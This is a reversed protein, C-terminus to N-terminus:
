LLSKGANPAVSLTSLDADAGHEKLVKCIMSLIVDCLAPNSVFCTAPMYLIGGLAQIMFICRDLCQQQSRSTLIFNELSSDAVAACFKGSLCSCCQEMLDDDRNRLLLQTDVFEMLEAHVEMQIKGHSFNKCSGNLSSELYNGSSTIRSDRLMFCYLSLLASFAAEKVGCVLEDARVECNPVISSLRRLAIKCNSLRKFKNKSGLHLKKPLKARLDTIPCLDLSSTNQYTSPETIAQVLELLLIGSSFDNRLDFLPKRARRPLFHANLWGRVAIEERQVPLITLIERSRYPEMTPRSISFIAACYAMKFGRASELTEGPPPLFALVGARTAARRIYEVIDRGPSLEDSSDKMTEEILKEFDSFSEWNPASKPGSSFGVCFCVWRWLINEPDARTLMELTEPHELLRSLGSCSHLNVDKLLYVRVIARWAQLAIDVTGSKMITNAALVGGGIVIGHQTARACFIRLLSTRSWTTWQQPPLFNALLDSDIDGLVGLPIVASQLVKLLFKCPDHSHKSELRQWLNKVTVHCRKVVCQLFAVMATAEVHKPCIVKKIEEVSDHSQFNEPLLPSMQPAETVLPQVPVDEVAKKSLPIVAIPPLTSNRSEMESISKAKSNEEKSDVTQTDRIVDMREQLAGKGGCTNRDRKLKKQHKRRVARGGLSAGHNFSRTVLSHPEHYAGPGPEPSVSRTVGSTSTWMRRRGKGFM